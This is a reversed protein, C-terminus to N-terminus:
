RVVEPEGSYDYDPIDMAIVVAAPISRMPRLAMRVLRLRFAANGVMSGIAERARDGLHTM